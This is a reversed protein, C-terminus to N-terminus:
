GWHWPLRDFIGKATRTAPFPRKGLRALALGVALFVGTVIAAVIAPALYSTDAWRIPFVFLAVLGAIAGAALADVFTLLAQGAARGLDM